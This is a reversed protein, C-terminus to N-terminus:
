DNASEERERNQIFDAKTRLIRSTVKLETTVEALEKKLERLDNIDQTLDTHQARRFINM